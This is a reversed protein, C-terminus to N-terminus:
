FIKNTNKWQIMDFLEDVKLFQHFAVADFIQTKNWTSVSRVLVASMPPAYQVNMWIM